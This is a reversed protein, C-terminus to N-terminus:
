GIGLRIRLEKAILEKSVEALIGLNVGGADSAASTIENWMDEHRITEVFDYGYNTMRFVGGRSGTEELMGVDSLLKLHFYKIRDQKSSSGTLVHMYLPDEHQEIELLLERIYDIDRVM